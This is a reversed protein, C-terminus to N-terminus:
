APVGTKLAHWVRGVDAELDALSGSNDIVYEAGAAWQERDPQMRLRLAVDDETMGRAVSRRTRLEEPADVVVSTWGPGALESRLPLELVVDRDGAAAVRVAIEDRIAPHTMSELLALQESDRFVIAALLPRSIRGEVVVSPWRRAVVTHAAGDPELIEHGIRDAEVVVAGHGELLRLVTSKGSGIGGSVIVRLPSEINGDPRM